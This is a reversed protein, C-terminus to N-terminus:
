MATVRVVWKKPVILVVKEAAKKEFLGTCLVDRYITVPQKGMEIIAIWTKFHKAFNRLGVEM